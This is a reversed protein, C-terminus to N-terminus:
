KESYKHFFVILFVIDAVIVICVIVIGTIAGGSLKTKISLIEASNNLMMTARHTFENEVQFVLIVIAIMFM